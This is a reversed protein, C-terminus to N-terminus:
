HADGQLAEKPRGVPKLHGLLTRALVVLMPSQPEPPVATVQAIGYRGAERWDWVAVPNYLAKVSEREPTKKLQKAEPAGTQVEQNTVATAGGNEHWSVQM